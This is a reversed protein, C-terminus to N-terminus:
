AARRQKFQRGLLKCIIKTQRPTTLNEISQKNNFKEHTEGDFPRQEYRERDKTLLLTEDIQQIPEDPLFEREQHALHQYQICRKHETCHRWDHLKGNNPQEDRWAQCEPCGFKLTLDERVFNFSKM